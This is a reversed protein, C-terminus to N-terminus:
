DQKYISEFPFSINDLLAKRDDELAGNQEEKIQLNYWKAISKFEALLVVKSYDGGVIKLLAILRNYNKFWESRKQIKPTSTESFYFGTKRLEYERDEDLSGNKEEARQKREWNLTKTTKYNGDKKIRSGNTNILKKIYSDQYGQWTTLSEDHKVKDYGWRFHIYNLLKERYKDLTNNQYEKRQERVFEALLRESEDKSNINPYGNNSKLFNTLKIYYKMWADNTM